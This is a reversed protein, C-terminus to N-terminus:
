KINYIMDDTGQPIKQPDRETELTNSLEKPAM